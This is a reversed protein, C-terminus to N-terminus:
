DGGRRGGPWNHNNNSRGGSANQGWKYDCPGETGEHQTGSPTQSTMGHPNEGFAVLTSFEINDRTNQKFRPDSVDSPQETEGNDLGKIPAQTRQQMFGYAAMPSNRKRAM